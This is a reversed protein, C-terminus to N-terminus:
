AWPMAPRASLFLSGERHGVPMDELSTVKQWGIKQSFMNVRDHGGLHAFIKEANVATVVEMNADTTEWTSAPLGM